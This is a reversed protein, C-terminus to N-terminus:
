NTVLWFSAGGTMDVDGLVPGEWMPRAAASLETDHSIFANALLVDFKKTESLLAVALLYQESYYRAGWGPPYDYPLFIDHLHVLVGKSLYPLIDLFVVTVDSNMFVRHSNDVFLIDGERLDRFASLELEEVPLRVISDCMSDIGLRPSPDFSTIKTKLSCDGIAKRAFGTSIGSGIEYYRSPNKLCLFSYLSVADLGSFWPNNWYPSAPQGPDRSLGIQSLLDRYQLFDELRWRFTQRGSNLIRYLRPHPPRGYGYRPVPNVPYDLSINM